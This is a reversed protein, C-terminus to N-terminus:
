KFGYSNNNVDFDSETVAVDTKLEAYTYEEILPAAESTKAPYGYNEIHILLNTKKDFYACTKQFKFPERRQPHSIEYMTCEIQGLKAQPYRQIQTDAHKLAEEWEVILIDLMKEIGLMTVPYRNEKMADGGTPSLSITGVVSALGSPEHVQLKGKNRGDVYIVERGAHPEIYKLYVSFPERRFKLTMVQRMLPGKKLQEQKIFTCTYGPFKRISDRSSRAAELLSSLLNKSDTNAALRASEDVKRAVAGSEEGKVASGDNERTPEDPLNADKNKRKARREKIPKDKACLGVGAPIAIISLMLASLVLLRADKVM